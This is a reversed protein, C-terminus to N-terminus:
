RVSGPPGTPSGGNGARTEFESFSLEASSPGRQTAVWTVIAALATAAATAFFVDALLAQSKGEDLKSSEPLVTFDRESRLALIGFVSGAIASAVSLGVSSYLVSKTVVGRLPSLRVRAVTLRKETVTVKGEWPRYGERNVVVRHTGAPLRTPRMPLNAVTRGEVIVLAGSAAEVQFKGYRPLAKLNVLLSIQNGAMVEVERRVRQYDELAVHVLHKGPDVEFLHPARYSEKLTDSDIFVRAGPIDTDVKISSKRQLQVDLLNRRDLRVDVTRSDPIFGALVLTIRQKGLPLKLQFPTRGKVGDKRNGVYIAAGPPYSTVSVDVLAKTRLGAIRELVTARDKAKPSRQLYRAFLLAAKAPNRLKEYTQAINYLIVPEEYLDLAAQYALLAEAYNGLRYLRNGRVFRRQAEAIVAPSPRRRRAAASKRKDKVKVRQSLKGPPPHAYSVRSIAVFAITLLLTLSVLGLWKPM